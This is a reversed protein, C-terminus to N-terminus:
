YGCHMDILSNKQCNQEPDTVYTVAEYFRLPIYSNGETEKLLRSSIEDLPLFFANLLTDLFFGYLCHCRSASHPEPKNTLCYKEM